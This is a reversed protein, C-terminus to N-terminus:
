FFLSTPLYFLYPATFVALSLALKKKITESLDAKRFSVKYNFLYIFYGSILVCVSVWLVAYINEFPRYTVANTLHKYWWEGLPTQYEVVMDVFNVSFMAVTGIFDSVFGFIWVKFIVKKAIDKIQNVKLVKLTVVVVTLDILFNAPFIVIWTLPFLWLLWIPFILNYLKTQRKSGM